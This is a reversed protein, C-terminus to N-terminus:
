YSQRFWSGRLHKLSSIRNPDPKKQYLGMQPSAKYANYRDFSKKVRSQVESPFLAENSRMEGQSQGLM